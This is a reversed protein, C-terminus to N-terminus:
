NARTAGGVRDVHRRVELLLMEAGPTLNRGAQRCMGFGATTFDVSLPVVALSGAAVADRALSRSVLAVADSHEVIRLMVMVSDVEAAARPFGLGREALAAELARRVPNERPHLVWELSALDGLSWEHTGALAPHDRRVCFVLEEDALPEYVMGPGVGRGFRGIALEVEGRSVLRLASDTTEGRVVFRLGPSSARLAGIAAGVLDASTGLITAISVEGSGGERMVQISAAMRQVEYSYRWAFALVERGSATVVLGRPRREYLRMGIFRELDALMKTATPQTIGIESAAETLTGSEGIAVVLRLHRGRLHETLADLSVSAM